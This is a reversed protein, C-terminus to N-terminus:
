HSGHMLTVEEEWSEERNFGEAARTGMSSGRVAELRRHDHKGIM